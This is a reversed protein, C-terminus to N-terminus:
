IKFFSRAKLELAKPLTQVQFCVYMSENIGFFEKLISLEKECPFAHLWVSKQMPYFGLEKLKGRLAERTTKRDEEIDFLLIRWQRDWTKTRVVELDDINLRSAKKRGEPTLSIYLQKGRYEMKVLGKRRLKSFSDLLRKHQKSRNAGNEDQAWGKKRVKMFSGVASFLNPAIAGVVLIGGVALTALIAKGIVRGGAAIKSRQQTTNAKKSLSNM